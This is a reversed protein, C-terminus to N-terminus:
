HSEKRIGFKPFPPAPQAKAKPYTPAHADHCDCCTLKQRYGMWNGIQKGHLNRKWDRLKEGHCQGCLVHAKDITTTGGTLLRLKTVEKSDHCLYCRDIGDMHKLRLESHTPKFRPKELNPDVHQHCKKCPYYKLLKARPSVEVEVDGARAPTGHATLALAVAAASISILITKSM